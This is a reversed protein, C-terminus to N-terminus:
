ILIGGRGDAGGSSLPNEEQKDALRAIRRKLKDAAVRSMEERSATAPAIISVEVGSDPDIATVKVQPGIQLFEILFTADGM